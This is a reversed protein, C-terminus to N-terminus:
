SLVFHTENKKVAQKCRIERHLPFSLQGRGVWQWWRLGSKYTWREEASGEARLTQTGYGYMLIQGHILSAGSSRRHVEEGASPFIFQAHQRGSLPLVNTLPSHSTPGTQHLQAAGRHPLSSCRAPITREAPVWPVAATNQASASPPRLSAATTSGDGQSRAAEATSQPHPASPISTSLEARHARCAPFSSLGHECLETQESCGLWHETDEDGALKM